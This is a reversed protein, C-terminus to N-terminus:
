DPAWSVLTTRFSLLLFNLSFLIINKHKRGVSKLLLLGIATTVSVLRDDQRGSGQYEGVGPDHQSGTAEHLEVSGESGQLCM